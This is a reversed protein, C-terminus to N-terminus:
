SNLVQVFDDETLIKLDLGEKQWKLAQEFKRGYSMHAWHPNGKNCIVLFNVSKRLDDNFFGGKNEIIEKWEAKTYRASAGTLCFTNDQINFSGHYFDPNQNETNSTISLRPLGFNDVQIYQNLLDKISQIHTENISKVSRIPKLTTHLREYIPDHSLHKNEQIWSKLELIEQTNIEQDCALGSLIGHLRQVDSTGAIFYKSTKFLHIIEKTQDNHTTLFEPDNKANILLQYLSDFHPLECCEPYAEVWKILSEIEKNNVTGDLFLGEFFGLFLNSLKSTNANANFKTFDM